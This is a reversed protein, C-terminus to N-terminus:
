RAAGQPVAIHPVLLHSDYGDGTWLIHTGRNRLDDHRAFALNYRDETFFDSGKVSLQLAEGLEFHVSTPWIEIELPVPEGRPLPEEADHPHVPQWPVTRDHDLARHSARLWGLALPGDDYLAYFTFPVRAGSADLKDLAIFLDMDDAEYSQVWLRLKFHGTLETPQDFVHVFRAGADPSTSDYECRSVESPLKETLSGGAGDLYLPRYDTRALPYESEDRWHGESGHTRVQIRVKPWTAMADAQGKLFCDFFQRQLAVNEPTYYHRWKKQGHVLLWKRDSSIAKYAELTGRTHLGHDSWSAVVFIPLDIAALDVEKSRWYADHLPHQRANEATYETRTTSWNLNRSAREVFCTERIGGHYCFERYWDSFGEWPNLAALHPPKMPGVLYQICALYSVGTMGVKGNCWPRTGLWEILDYVDEGEGQGNHRLEGESLWSGRPDPYCVAYGAQTWLVPDPAEFATHRSIWGNEIGAPPWLNDSKGHKGYPSWALLVPLDREGFAGAPRFLDVYITVGDRMRVPLNREFLMGDVIESHPGLPPLPPKYPNTAPDTGPLMALEFLETM